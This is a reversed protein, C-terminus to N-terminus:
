TAQRRSLRASRIEPGGCPERGAFLYHQVFPSSWRDSLHPFNMQPTRCPAVFPSVLRRVAPPSHLMCVYEIEPLPTRDTNRLFDTALLRGLLGENRPFRSAPLHSAAPKFFGSAYESFYTSPARHPSYTVGHKHAGGLHHPPRSQKPGLVIWIAASRKDCYFPM